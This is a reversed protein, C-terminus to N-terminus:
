PEEWLGKPKSKVETTWRVRPQTRSAAGWLFCTAVFDSRSKSCPKIKAMDELGSKIGLLTRVVWMLYKGVLFIFFGFCDANCIGM